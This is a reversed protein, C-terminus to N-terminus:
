EDVDEMPEIMPAMDVADVSVDSEDVDEMPEIMPALDVAVESVVGTPENSDSSAGAAMAGNVALATIAMAALVLGVARGPHQSLVSMQTSGFAAIESMRVM